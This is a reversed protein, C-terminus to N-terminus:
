DTEISFSRQCDICRHSHLIKSDIAEGLAAGVACGTAAGVMAGLVSGALAAITFGAPGAATGVLAGLQAGLQAGGAVRSTATAAGALTGITSGIRRGLHSPLVRTSQCYPCCGRRAQSAPWGSVSRPQNGLAGLTFEEEIDEECGDHDQHLHSLMPKRGLHTILSVQSPLHQRPLRVQAILSRTLIQSAVPRAAVRTNVPWRLM